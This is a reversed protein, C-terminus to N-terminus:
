KNFGERFKFIWGMLSWGLGAWELTTLAPGKYQCSPCLGGNFVAVAPPRLMSLTLHEFLVACLHVVSCLVSMPYCEVITYLM